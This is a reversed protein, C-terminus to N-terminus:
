TARRSTRLRELGDLILDLGLEFGSEGEVSGDLHQEVHETFYPYEAKPFDHLFEGALRSVDDKTLSSFNIEQVAFGLIYSELVHYAHYTLAESFGAERLTQLVWENQGLTAPGPMRRIKLSSAWPHRVLLDGVAIANSRLAAKWDTGERPQDIEAMVADAIGELIDDKNAVHNYLSMAEVGLERGLRRMTVAEIGDRDALKVAARLVRQRNLRPRSM